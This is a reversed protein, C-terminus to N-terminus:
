GSTAAVTVAPIITAIMIAAQMAEVAQRTADGVLNGKIIDKIRAKRARLKKKDFLPRLLGTSQCISILVLVHPDIVAKDTFIADSMKAIIEKEPKPNIEPYLKRNFILLVKDEELKLIGKRCLSIATRHKIRSMNAIRAVWNQVQVRRRSTKLKNLCEDLIENGSLKHDLLSVFKKRGEEQIKVKNSLLFEAVIAGAMAHQYNVGFHMSGEKDRLALLLIEEHLHLKKTKEMSLKKKTYFALNNIKSLPIL